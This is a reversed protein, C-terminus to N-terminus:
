IATDAYAALLVDGRCRVELEDNFFPLDSQVGVRLPCAIPNSIRIEITDGDIRHQPAFVFIPYRESPLDPSCGGVALLAIVIISRLQRWQKM